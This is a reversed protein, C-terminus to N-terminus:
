WIIDSDNEHDCTCRKEPDPKRFKNLLTLETNAYRKAMDMIVENAHKQMLHDVFEHEWITTFKKRKCFPCIYKTDCFCVTVKGDPKMTVDGFENM